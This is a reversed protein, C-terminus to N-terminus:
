DSARTSGARESPSSSSVYLPRAPDDGIPANGAPNRLQVTQQALAPTGLGLLAAILLLARVTTNAKM